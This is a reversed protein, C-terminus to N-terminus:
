FQTTWCLETASSDDGNWSRFHPQNQLSRISTYWDRQVREQTPNQRLRLKASVHEPSEAEPWSQTSRPKWVRWLRHKGHIKFPHFSQYLDGELKKEHTKIQAQQLEGTKPLILWVSYDMLRGCVYTLRELAHLHFQSRLYTRESSNM